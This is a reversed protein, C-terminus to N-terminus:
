LKVLPATCRGINLSFGGCWQGDGNRLAGGATALGPNGHSAGDTNLKVWSVLPPTWSVLREQRSALEVSSSASAGSWVEKTYDQVFKVRDRWLKTEGFINGCRWKWAWWVAVM